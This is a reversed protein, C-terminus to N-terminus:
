YQGRGELARKLTLPDAYEVDAGTPLGRAIRTISINSCGQDQTIKQKLYLATTEGETSPNTALIVEVSEKEHLSRLLVMLDSIRLEEEHIGRIPDIVGGLVFYVGTFVGAKELAVVDLPEEVVMIFGKNRTEDACISCEESDTINFCKSCLKIKTTLHVLNESLLIVDEKPMRILHYALREASRPGIGPLHRLMDITNELHIPLKM